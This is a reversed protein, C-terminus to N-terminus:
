RSPPRVNSRPPSPRKARRARGVAMHTSVRRRRTRLYVKRRSGLHKRRRPTGRKKRPTGTCWSVATGRWGGVGGRDLGGGALVAGGGSHVAVDRCGGAGSAEWCGGCGAAEGCRGAGTTLGGAGAAHPRAAPPVQQLHRRRLTLGPYKLHLEKTCHRAHNIASNRLSVHLHHHIHM